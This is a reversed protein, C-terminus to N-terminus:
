AQRQFSFHDVFPLIMSIITAGPVSLGHNGDYRHFSILIQM